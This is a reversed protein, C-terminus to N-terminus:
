ANDDGGDGDCAPPQADPRKCSDAGPCTCTRDLNLAFPLGGDLGMDIRALAFVFDGGDDEDKVNPRAPVGVVSCPDVADTGADLAAQADAAREQRDEIGVLLQCAAGM